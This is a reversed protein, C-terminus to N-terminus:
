GGRQPIVCADGDCYMDMLKDNGIVGDVASVDIKSMMEHYREKDISEYPAQEYGHDELPLFSIGKLRTSSWEIAEALDDVSVKNLDFKVTASVANDAWYQQATAILNLQDWMSVESESKTGPGADVPFEVVYSDRSYVSQEVNYGARQLSALIKSNDALTLRRIHYRSAVNYHIGPTVGSVLSITGSPKVSTKRVSVPIDMWQSYLRDYYGAVKHYGHDLWDQWVEMGHQGIFQTHGTVSLGIRRNQSMIEASDTNKLYPSLLTVTKGYLYAYKIARAFEYKTKCHPMHIESLTCREEDGLVQELCNHVILGNASFRHIEDVTCDYVHDEGEYVLSDFTAVFRERNPNRSYSSIASELKERKDPKDFGVLEAYQVINDNSIVLEQIDKCLYLKTGGKGDPLRRYGAPARNYITSNIGLRLLMEQAILLHDPRTSSLRVSIGKSVNGQVSGDCDFLGRLFGKQFQSSSLLLPTRSLTKDDEIDLHTLLKHIKTSSFLANDRDENIHGKRIKHYHPEGGLAETRALALSLMHEKHEGWFGMVATEKNYNGDGLFAGVLWGEEFTGFGDWETWKRNNNLVIEQGEVLDKAEVWEDYQTKTTLRTALIKHNETVRISHGEKTKLRYVPKVGTCWFGQSAFLKGNVSALFPRKLLDWVLRPGNYTDIVTDGTVCPNAGMVTPDPEHIGNMRAFNRANDIWFYGPEGNDYTRQALMRYDVDMGDEIMVSNNSTWGYESRHPNLEYNKLNIFDNDYPSGLAIEASRRVNGAVVCAGILNFIDTITTSTIPKGQNKYLATFVMKHLHMLPEPGSAVGGFGAIPEGKKRIKSYDFVPIPQNFLFADILASVSNAWGERSDDIIYDFLDLGNVWGENWRVDITGAGRTDFGMGVGLMLDNMFSKFISGGKTAIDITSNFGCNQLATYEEREHVFPTGMMWLGRGPPTWKFNFMLDFAEMASALAKENNWRRTPVHQKQITYMGNIVRECVDVWSEQGDVKPNDTRSYTRYFTVKGLGNWGFPVPRDRYQDVFKKPLEFTFM